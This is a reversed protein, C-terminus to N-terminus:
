KVRVDPRVMLQLVLDKAAAPAALFNPHQPLQCRHHILPISADFM